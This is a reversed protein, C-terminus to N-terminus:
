GEEGQYDNLLVEVRPRDKDIKFEDSFGEIHKWGDGQLVGALVLGDEIFKRGTASINSKDTRTDKCYWTYRMYVPKTFKKIKQAKAEWAVLETWQKKMKSAAFRNSRETNIYENLSPLTGKITLINSM